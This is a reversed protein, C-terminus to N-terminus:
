KVLRTYMPSPIVVASVPELFYCDMCSHLDKSRFAWISCKWFLGHKMQSSAAPRSFPLWMM